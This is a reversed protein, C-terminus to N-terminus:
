REDSRMEGTGGYGRRIPDFAFFDVFHVPGLQENALEFESSAACREGDPRRLYRSRHRQIQLCHPHFANIQLAVAPCTDNTARDPTITHIVIVPYVPVDRRFSSIFTVGRISVAGSPRAIESVIPRTYSTSPM